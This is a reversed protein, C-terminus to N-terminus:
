NVTATVASADAYYAISDPGVNLAWDTAVELGDATVTASYSVSSVPYVTGSWNSLQLATGAPLRGQANAAVAAASLQSDITSANIAAAIATQLEDTTLSAGTALTAVATVSVLVPVAARVVCDGGAAAASPSDCAAQAEAVGPVYRVIADYARTSVEETLDGTATDTDTFRVTATAYSSLTADVASRVDPGLDAASIDYGPTPLAVLSYGVATLAADAPLVKEVLFWGPADDVVLPFRWIGLDADELTATVRVRLRGPADSTRVRVDLRGPTQSTLVSRGRRMGDDGFGLLTVASFNFADRVVAEAGERSATTRPATASPLRALLEADTEEDAGGTLDEAVVATTLGSLSASATLGTGATRNGSAGVDVAVIPVVGTYGGAPDAVLLADGSLVTTATPALLRVADSTKFLVGDATEFQFGAPVTRTTADSFHLAAVGSATTAERRTVGRGALASALVDADYVGSALAAEPDLSSAEAEARYEIAALADASPGLVLDALPGVRLSLNPYLSQLYSSLVARAAAVDASSAGALEAATVM